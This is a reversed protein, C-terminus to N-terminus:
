AGFTMTVQTSPVDFTPHAIPAIPQAHDGLKAVFRHHIPPRSAM